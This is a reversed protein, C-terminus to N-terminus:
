KSKRWESILYGTLAVALGPIGSYYDAMTSQDAQPLKSIMVPGVLALLWAIVALLVGAVYYPDAQQIERLTDAPVRLWGDINLSVAGAEANSADMEYAVGKIDTFSNMWRIGTLGDTVGQEIGSQVDRVRFERVGMRRLIEILNEYEVRQGRQGNEGTLPFRRGPHGTKDSGQALTAAHVKLRHGVHDRLHDRRLKLGPHQDQRQGQRLMVAASRRPGLDQASQCIFDHVQQGPESRLEALVLRPVLGPLSLATRM